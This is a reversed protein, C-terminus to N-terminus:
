KQMIGKDIFRVGKAELAERMAAITSPLANAGQEFNRATGISIKAAAALQAQTWGILSRGARCQERSM